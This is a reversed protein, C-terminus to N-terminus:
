WEEILRKLGDAIAQHGALNPHIDKGDFHTPLLVTRTDFTEVGAPLMNVIAANLLPLMIAFTANAGSFPDAYLMAIVRDRDEFALFVHFLAALGRSVEDPTVSGDAIAQLADNGLLSVIVVDSPTRVARSLMDKHDADWQAATSGPVAQRMAPPIGLLSPWGLHEPDGAVVASAWSDGVVLIKEPNVMTM